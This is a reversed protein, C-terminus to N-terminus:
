VHGVEVMEIIKAQEFRQMYFQQRTLGSRDRLEYLEKRTYTKADPTEIEQRVSVGSANNIADSIRKKHGFLMEDPLQEFPFYAIEIVENVQAKIEGGVSKAAYLVAHVDQLGGGMRSYVGVLSTLEVDLGTEEKTERIAAEALSEGDEVGGSPLCWVEFDERKTLLIKRNHIVAVNVALGPM